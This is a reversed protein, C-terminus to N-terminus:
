KGKKDSKAEADAEAAKASNDSQKQPANLETHPSATNSSTQTEADKSDVTKSKTNKAEARSIKEQRRTEEDKQDQFRKNTIYEADEEVERLRGEAM